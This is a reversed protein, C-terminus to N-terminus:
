QVVQWLSFEIPPPPRQLPPLDVPPVPYPDGACVIDDFEKQQERCEANSGAFTAAGFDWGRASHELFWDLAVLLRGESSVGLAVFRGGIELMLATDATEAYRGFGYTETHLRATTSSPVDGASAADLRTLAVTNLPQMTAAGDVALMVVMQENEIWDMDIGADVFSGVFAYPNWPNSVRGLSGGNTGSLRLEPAHLGAVECSGQSARERRWRAAAAPQCDGALTIASVSGFSGGLHNERRFNAVESGGISSVSAVPVTYKSPIRTAGGISTLWKKPSTTRMASLIM